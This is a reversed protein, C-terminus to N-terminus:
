GLSGLSGLSELSWHSGHYEHSGFFGLSGYSGLSGHSGLSGVSGVLIKGLICSLPCLFLVHGLGHSVVSVVRNSVWIIFSEDFNLMWPFPINYSIPCLIQGM